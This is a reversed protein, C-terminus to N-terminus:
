PNWKTVLEDLKDLFDPNPREDVHRQNWLGSGIVKVNANGKTDTCQNGLWEDSPPDIPINGFDSLLRISNREIFKRLEVGSTVDDAVDVEMWLFPMQRVVTSIESESARHTTRGCNFFARGILNRFISGSVRGSRHQSLRNWLTTRSGGRKTSHSGVRVIRLGHGSEFREEGHEMFFYVGRTPWGSLKSCEGLVRQGGVKRELEGLINYFRLADHLRSERSRPANM